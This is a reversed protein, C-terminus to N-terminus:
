TCCLARRGSRTGAWRCRMSGVGQGAYPGGEGGLNACRLHTCSRTAAAQALELQQAAQQEATAWAELLRAALDATARLLPQYAAAITSLDPGAAQLERDLSRFVVLLKLSAVSLSAAIRLASTEPSDPEAAAASSSTADPMQANLQECITSSAERLSEVVGPLTGLCTLAQM